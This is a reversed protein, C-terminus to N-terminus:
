TMGGLCLKHCRFPTLGAGIGSDGEPMSLIFSTIPLSAELDYYTGSPGSNKGRGTWYTLWIGSRLLSCTGSFSPFMPASGLFWLCQCSEGLGYPHVCGAALREARTLMPVTLWGVQALDPYLRNEAMFDSSHRGTGVGPCYRLPQCHWCVSCWIEADWLGM